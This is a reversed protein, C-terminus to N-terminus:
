IGALVSQMDLNTAAGAHEQLASVYSGQGAECAFEVVFRFERFTFLAHANGIELTLSRDSAVGSAERSCSKDRVQM